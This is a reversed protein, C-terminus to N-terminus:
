VGRLVGALAEARLWRSRGVRVAVEGGDRQIRKLETTLTRLRDYHARDLSAQRVCLPRMSTRAPEVEGLADPPADRADVLRGGRLTLRRSLESSPERFVVLSDCLLCLWRARDLLQHGHAVARELHRLVRDADWSGPSATPEDADSESDDRAGPSRAAALLRRAGLVLARRSDSPADPGVHREVFRAFGAAFVAADPAWREATEVAIARRLPTAEAGALLDRIVRVARVSFTSPLPGRRHEADPAPRVSDLRASAFWSAGDNTLQLNYLPARTKIEENELLAAELVTRTCVIQVDHIQALMELARPTTAAGGTFHGSVRKKLSAAKGVYLLDGNARLFHYVGPADPLSRYRASPLPFHRKKGRRPKPAALFRALEDWSHVGRAGLEIALRQWIFATAEVHASCRRTLDLGHGLYGALARLSQRPLDPYLRTAVAHLCVADLPFAGGPEFRNAWDRLFALEFSAFHIAAPVRPAHDMSARLRQWVEPAGLTASALAEDFGTLERVRATVREGPPLAVWHAESRDVGAGNATVRAWGIELVAGHAPSAGTTQCDIVWVELESLSQVAKSTSSRM